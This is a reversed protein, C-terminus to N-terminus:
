IDLNASMRCQNSRFFLVRGQVFYWGPYEVRVYLTSRPSPQFRNFELVAWSKVWGNTNFALFMNGQKELVTKKLQTVNGRLHPLYAYDEGPVDWGNFRVFEGDRVGANAAM